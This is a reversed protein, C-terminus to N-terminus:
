PSDDQERKGKSSLDFTYTYGAGICVSPAAAQTSDDSSDWPLGLGLFIHAGRFPHVNLFVSTPVLLFITQFGFTLYEFGKRTSLGAMPVLSLGVLPSLLTQPFALETRLGLNFREFPTSFKVGLGAFPLSTIASSTTDSDDLDILMGARGVVSFWNTPAWALEVDPRIGVIDYDFNILGSSGTHYRANQFAVGGGLTFGPYIRATDYIPSVCGGIICVIAMTRIPIFLCRSNILAWGRKKEM